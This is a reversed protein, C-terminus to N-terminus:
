VQQKEEEANYESIVEYNKISVEYATYEQTYMDSKKKYTRSQFRGELSIKDGIMLKKAAKANLGWTICPIYSQRSPITGRGKRNTVALLLDTIIKGKKTERFLPKKCVTGEFRVINSTKDDEKPFEIDKAFCYIDVHKNHNKTRIDGNVAVKMGNKLNM